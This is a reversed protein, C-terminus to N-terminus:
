RSCHLSEDELEKIRKKLFRNRVWSRGCSWNYGGMGNPLSKDLDFALVEKEEKTIIDESYLRQVNHCIGHTYKRFFSCRYKLLIKYLEIINRM